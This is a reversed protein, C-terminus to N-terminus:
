FPLNLQADYTSSITESNPLLVTKPSTTKKINVLGKKHIDQNSIFHGSAGTDAKM